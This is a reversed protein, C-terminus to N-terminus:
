LIDLFLSLQSGPLAQKCLYKALNVSRHWENETEYVQRVGHPCSAEIKSMCSEYEYYGSFNDDYVYAYLTLTHFVVSKDTELRNQLM